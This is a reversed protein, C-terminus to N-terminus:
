RLLPALQKSLAKRAKFIRSEVASVSDGTIAAIEAYSLGEYQRLILAERYEAKLQRLGREIMTHVEEEVLTDYPSAGDWVEEADELDARLGDGRHRRIHRFAENRAISFLWYYFLRHHDLSGLSQYAKLFSTQTIDEATEPNATLRYCFAFVRPRYKEYLRSFAAKDGKWSRNVLEADDASIM